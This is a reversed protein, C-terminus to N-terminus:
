SGGYWETGCPLVTEDWAPAPVSLDIGLDDMHRDSHCLSYDHEYSHGTDDPTITEDIGCHYIVARYAVTVAGAPMRGTPLVACAAPKDDMYVYVRSTSAYVDWKVPRDFGAVDGEVPVATWPKKWTQTYDGAHFGYVNARNCQQSVGWGHMDCFEIQTEQYGGFPQVVITQGGMPPLDDATGAKGDPGVLDFSFSGLRTHVPVMDINGADPAPDAALPIDTIMIQPYRRGTSPIDSTMTVHLFGDAALQTPVKKPTMSINCSSGGDAFGLVFQGLLPGFTFNDTCGSTDIAWDDNRYIFANNDQWKTFPGWPAGADFTALFDMQPKAAPTVDVYARAVPKPRSMPDHQGNIFVEGSSLRAEDLTLSPSNFPQGSTRDVDADHHSSAIYGGAFPCGADLAEIVFRTPQTIGPWSLAALPLGGQHLVQQFRAEGAALVDFGGSYEVRRLPVSDAAQAALIKFRPGLDAIDKAPQAARADYEPGDTFFFVVNNGQWDAGDAYHVRYVTKTAATTTDAVTYFAIGDDRWGQALLADRQATDTVYEASNAESFLPVVWDSNMFGGGGNPNAVRYVPVRDAAPTIFVHGLTSEADTRSYGHLTNDCGSLSCSYLAGQDNVRDTFVRDGACRYIGNKVGVEGAAGILWDGAAPEPYIRYDVAGAVPEFGIVATDGHVTVKVNQIAPLDPVCGTGTCPARCAGGSCTLGNGCAQGDCDTDLCDVYGDCDDDVGGSCTVESTATPTCTPGPMVLRGGAGGGGNVGGTGGSTSGTAAPGGAGGVQGVVNHAGCGAFLLVTLGVAIGFCTNTKM